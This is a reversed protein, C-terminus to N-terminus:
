SQETGHRLADALQLIWRPRYEGELMLEGNRYSAVEVFGNENDYFVAEDCYPLVEALASWRSRFRREVDEPPIDHGGKAVRNAIRRRSEGATDLGVYFLRVYYGADRVRRATQRTRHGSLTTEQTFSVNKSIYDEILRVATKGGRLASGGTQATIKDVDVIIGLDTMRSKLVGTLSSKGVGNVGGVITYIKM